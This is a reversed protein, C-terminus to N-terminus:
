LMDRIHDASICHTTQHLEHPNIGGLSIRGQGPVWAGILMGVVQLRRPCQVFSGSQGPRTQINLVGHKSKAGNNEMIVKAGIEARQLTLARRGFTCHPYGFIEMQDAVNCDDFSGLPAFTFGSPFTLDTKLIAIDRSPDVETMKAPAISCNTESSDQYVNIDVTPSLVICLNDDNSGVVHYPTACNGFQDAIFASGLVNVGGPSIRGVLVARHTGVM